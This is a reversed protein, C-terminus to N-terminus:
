KGSGFIEAPRFVLWRSSRMRAHEEAELTSRACAGGGRGASRSSVLVFDRVRNRCAADVPNRTTESNVKMYTRPNRAHTVGARHIVMTVDECARTLFDEDRIDGRLWTVGDEDTRKTRSVGRIAYRTGDTGGTFGMLLKPSAGPVLITERAGCIM